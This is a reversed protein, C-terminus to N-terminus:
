RRPGFLLDVGLHLVDLLFEVLRLELADLLGQETEVRIFRHLLVGEGNEL